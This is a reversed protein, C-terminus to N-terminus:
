SLQDVDRRHRHRASPGLALHEEALAVGAVGAVHDLLAAHPHQAVVAVAARDRQGLQAPPSRKPSSAINSVSRREAVTSAASSVRADRQQGAVHAPQETTVRVHRQLQQGREGLAQALGVLADGALGELRNGLM